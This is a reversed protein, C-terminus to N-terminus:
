RTSITLSVFVSTTLQVCAVVYSNPSRNGPWIGEYERIVIGMGNSEREQAARTPSFCDHVAAFRMLAFESFTGAEGEKEFSSATISAADFPATVSLFNNESENQHWLEPADLSFVDGYYFTKLKVPRKKFIGLM